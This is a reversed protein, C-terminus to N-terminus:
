CFEVQKAIMEVLKSRAQPDTLLRQIVEPSRAAPPLSALMLSQMQPSGAMLDLLKEANKIAEADPAPSCFCAPQTIAFPLLFAQDVIILSPRVPCKIKGSSFPRLLNFIENTLPPLSDRWAKSGGGRLAAVGLRCLPAGQSVLRRLQFM